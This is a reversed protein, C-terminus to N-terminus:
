AFRHDPLPHSDAMLIRAEAGVCEGVTTDRPYAAAAQVVTNVLGMLAQAAVLGIAVAGIYQTQLIERLRNM